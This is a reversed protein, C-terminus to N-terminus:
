IHYVTSQITIRKLKAPVSPTHSQLYSILISWNMFICPSQGLRHLVKHWVEEAFSCHLFLHDRTEDNTNCLCCHSTVPMGWNGVGYFEQGAQTYGLKCAYVLQDLVVRYFISPWSNVGKVEVILSVGLQSQQCDPSSRLFLIM